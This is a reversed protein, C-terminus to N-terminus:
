IKNFSAVTVSQVWDEFSEIHETIDDLVIKADEITCTMVLKKIGYAIPEFKYTQGWALGDKEFKVIERWAAELDTDAEWPKVDLVILSKEVPKAKDVKAKGENKKKDAEEKMLRAKEMRERRAANAAREAATEGNEDLADDDEDNAFM